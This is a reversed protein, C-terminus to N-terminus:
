QAENNPQRAAALSLGFMVAIVVKISDLILFPASAYLLPMFPVHTIISQVGIGIGYLAAMLGAACSAAYRLALLVKHTHGSDAAASHSWTAGALLASILTTALFGWIFGASPGILAAASMGGSFVPAGMAGLAIYAGVAATIESLSLALAMCMLAGTQLTIGVPTGPIPIRGLANAIVLSILAITSRLASSLLRHHAAAARLRPILGSLTETEMFAGKTNEQFDTVYGAM